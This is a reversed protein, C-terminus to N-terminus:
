IYDLEFHLRIDLLYSFMSFFSLCISHMSKKQAKRDIIKRKPIAAEKNLSPSGINLTTLGIFNM